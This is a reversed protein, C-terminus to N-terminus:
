RGQPESGTGAAHQKMAKRLEQEQADNWYRCDLRLFVSTYPITLTTKLVLVHFTAGADALMHILQEHPLSHVQLGGLMEPVKQRYVTVGPAGEEPVFPLEADMYVFPAVQKAHSFEDLVAHVVEEESSGTEVTEVGPAVQLPYASDVIVIWNRHGLLPLEREVTARWDTQAAARLPACAAALLLVAAAICATKRFGSLIRFNREKLRFLSHLFRAM